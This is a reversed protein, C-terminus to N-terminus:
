LTAVSTQIFPIYSLVNVYVGPVNSGACGIGWSALGAVFARGNLDCVLPSGGDGTCADKGPDGGACIFSTGDFVFTPGLRTATLAAQCRATDLIPVDVEKQITQYVGLFDNKGWGSVWCSHFLHLCISINCIIRNKKFIAILSYRQGIFPTVPLCATGITPLQGLPVAVGLRIVAVDNRLTQPNFMPHIFIRAVVFQQASLFFLSKTYTSFDLM